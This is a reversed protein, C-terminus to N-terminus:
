FFSDQNVETLILTVLDDIRNFKRFSIVAQGDVM